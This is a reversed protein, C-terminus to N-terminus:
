EGQNHDNFIFNKQSNSADGLVREGFLEIERRNPIKERIM